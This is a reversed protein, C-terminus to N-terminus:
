EEVYLDIRGEPDHQDMIAVHRTVLEDMRLANRLTSAWAGEAFGTAPGKNDWNGPFTYYHLSIGDMHQRADRMLVETFNTTTSM